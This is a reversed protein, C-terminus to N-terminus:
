NATPQAIKLQSILGKGNLKSSMVLKMYDPRSISQYKAKNKENILEPLPRITVNVAPSHFAAISLREKNPNVMARHLISKYEGNSMIEIMDGVNVIFAGAIPVIPVWKEDKRIQLGQVDNVQTLLTLACADSHPTFGIVKNSEKCPPYYNMGIGLTGDKFLTLLKQPEVGLNIAMHNLLTLELKELGSSYQEFSTRFSSPNTPWFRMNRDSVPKSNIFLIDGWSLKDEDSSVFSHGYGELGIADPLQACSMKEQLPLKFFEQIDVKMKQMVEETVSHNIVQLQIDILDVQFFGWDKCASHLKASEQAAVDGSGALKIMDIVPIMHSGDTSVQDLELDSRIFKNPVHGDKTETALQQVNPLLKDM